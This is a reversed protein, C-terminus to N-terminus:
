VTNPLTKNGYKNGSTHPEGWSWPGMERRLSTALHYAETLLQEDSCDPHQRLWSVVSYLLPHGKATSEMEAPDAALYKTRQEVVRVATRLFNRVMLDRAVVLVEGNPALVREARATLENWHPLYEFDIVNGTDFCVTDYKEITEALHEEVSGRRIACREVGPWAHKSWAEAVLKVVFPDPEVVHVSEVRPFSLAFQPFIGLGLGVCLMKGRSRKAAEWLMMRKQLGGPWCDSYPLGATRKEEWRFKRESWDFQCGPLRKYLSFIAPADPMVVRRGYLAHIDLGERIVTLDGDYDGEEPFSLRASLSQYDQRDDQWTQDCFSGRTALRTRLSDKTFFAFGSPADRTWLESLAEALFRPQSPDRALGGATESEQAKNRFQQLM